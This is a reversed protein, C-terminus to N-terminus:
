RKREKKKAATPQGNCGPCTHGLGHYQLEAGSEDKTSRVFISWGPPLKPAEAVTQCTDCRVLSTM